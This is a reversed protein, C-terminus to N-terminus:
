LAEELSARYRRSVTFSQGTRLLVQADGRSLAQIESVRDIAILTSRHIRVFRQTGLEQQLQGLSARHLHEKSGAHIRVYSGAAEVWDIEASPIIHVRGGMRVVLREAGQQGRQIDKLVREVRQGWAWPAAKARGLAQELRKPDVPKLVYDIAGADFATLAHQSYATVFIVAPRQDDPLKELVAFADMGPMEIDLLVIDPQLTKIAEVAEEGNRCEGLLRYSGYQALMRGLGQRALPEDDVILVTHTEPM